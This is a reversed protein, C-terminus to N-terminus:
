FPRVITLGDPAFLHLRSLDLALGVKQGAAIAAVNGIARVTIVSNPTVSVYAFTDSGLREVVEITGSLHGEGDKVLSIDEPRFGIKSLEAPAPGALSFRSGNEVAISKGDVHASLVNMKPSGIFQAVFLNQPREYLEM